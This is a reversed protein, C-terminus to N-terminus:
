RTYIHFILFGGGISWFYGRWVELYMCVGEVCGGGGPNKKKLGYLM